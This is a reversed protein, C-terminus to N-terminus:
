GEESRLARLVDGIAELAQAEAQDLNARLEFGAANAHGGGGFRLAAPRVDVGPESRLSAKVMGPESMERLFLGVKVGEISRPIEAVEQVDGAEVGHRKLMEQTLRCVAVDGDFERRMGRVVEASLRLEDWAVSQYIEQNARVSDAGAAMLRACVAVTRPSTNPYTLRGTDTIIAVYLCTAAEPSLPWGRSAILDFVMEGASSKTTDVWDVVGMPEKSRHHDIRVVDVGGPFRNTIRGLRERTPCDLAIILDGDGLSATGDYLFEMGPLFRYIRPIPGDNAVVPRKGLRALADALGLESAIADGDLRMHTVLIPRQCKQIRDAIEQGEAPPRQISFFDPDTM